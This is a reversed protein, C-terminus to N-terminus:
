DCAGEAALGMWAELRGGRWWRKVEGSVEALRSWGIDVREIM